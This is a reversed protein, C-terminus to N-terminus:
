PTIELEYGGYKRMNIVGNDFILYQGRIGMLAGSIEPNKDLNLSVIKTAYEKVPYHIEVVESDHMREFADEGHESALTNLQEEVQPLFQDRLAKLDLNENEGKLIARWNTKDAMLKALSIEVLGSILRTRAKFIPLAQTAGQDMWRTPIQSARTIGVKLASTNALYVVHGTMCNAEGWEPERCTGEHHHCTEPNLICMDCAALSQLCPYCHGQAFSKNTKRGCSICNIVGTYRFALTKGLYPNLHLQEDGVPLYYEVPEALRNIMKRINGRMSVQHKKNSCFATDYCEPLQVSFYWTVKVCATVQIRNPTILEPM